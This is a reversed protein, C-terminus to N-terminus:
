GRPRYIHTMLLKITTKGTNKAADSLPGGVLGMGKEMKMIQRQGGKTTVALEGGELVYVTHDPHSHLKATDGPKMTVIFMKIGLTDGLKQISEGGLTYVDITSDYVPNTPMEIGRRRHVDIKLWRLPTKGINKFAETFPSMIFGLGPSWPPGSLTDAKNQGPIYFLSTSSDLLYFIHDPDSHFPLSDGPKLTVEIMTIGLSDHLKKSFAAGVVLLNKAPDYAPIATTDGKIDTAPSSDINKEKTNSSENCAAAYLFLMLVFLRIINKFTQM